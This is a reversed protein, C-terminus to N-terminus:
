PRLWGPQAGARRAEDELLRWRAQLGARTAELDRIQTILASRDYSNDYYPYTSAFGPFCPAFRCQNFNFRNFVRRHKNFGFSNSFNLFVGARPRRDGSNAVLLGGNPRVTSPSQNFAVPPTQPRGTSFIFPAPSGLTAFSITSITNSTENLRARLYNIQADLAYLEDRLSTARERWYSEADLQAGESRSLIERARESEELRQRETEERSPLGLEKRRREYAAESELRRRRAGELDMNTLTRVARAANPNKAAQSTSVAAAASRRGARQLLSGAVEGNARETAAIDITSMQLTVYIGSSTEYTLTTATVEFADPIEVRHGGRMVVTYACAAVPLLLSLALAAALKRGRAIFGNERSM